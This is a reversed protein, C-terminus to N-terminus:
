FGLSNLIRMTSWGEWIIFNIEEVDSVNGTTINATASGGGVLNELKAIQVDATTDNKYAVYIVYVDKKSTIHAYDVNVAIEAGATIDAASTIAEGGIQANKIAIKQEAKQTFIAVYSNVKQLAAGRTNKIGEAVVKYTKGPEFTMGTLIAVTVGDAGTEATVTSDIKVDDCTIYVTNNTIQSHDIESGFDVVIKEVETTFGGQGSWIEGGKAVVTVRDKSFVPVANGTDVVKVLRKVSLSKINVRYNENIGNANYDANRIIIKEPAAPLTIEDGRTVADTFLYYDGVGHKVYQKFLGTDLDMEVNYTFSPIQQSGVTAGYVTSSGNKYFTGDRTERARALMNASIAENYYILAGNKTASDDDVLGFKMDVRYIDTVIDDEGADPSALNAFTITMFDASADSEASILGKSASSNTTDINTINVGAAAMGALVDDVNMQYVEVWEEIVKRFKATYSFSKAAQFTWVADESVLEDGDYWGSFIFGEKPEAKLTVESYKIVTDGIDTVIGYADNETAVEVNVYELPIEVQRVIKLSKVNARYGNAAKITLSTVPAGSWASLNGGSANTASSYQNVLGSDTMRQALHKGAAGTAANLHAITYHAEKGTVQNWTPDTSWEDSMVCFDSGERARLVKKNGNIFMWTGNKTTDDTDNLNAVLEISYINSGQEGPAIGVEALDITLFDTDAAVTTSILGNAKSSNASDLITTNLTVGAPVTGAKLANVDLEYVVKNVVYSKVFRATYNASEEVMFTWEKKTSAPADEGEKFWGEFLYGSKPYATLTVENGSQVQGLTAEDTSVGTIEVTGKEADETTVNIECTISPIVAVRKIVLSKINARRGSAAKITLINIPKEESANGASLAHGNAYIEYQPSTGRKAYHAEASGDAVNLNEMIYTATAGTNAQWHLNAWENPMACIDSNERARFVPTDAVGKLLMITGNNASDDTDNVNAVIEITYIGEGEGLAAAAMESLNITLLATDSEVVDSVLADTTTAEMDVIAGNLTVGAPVIGANLAAADMEYITQTVRRAAIFKAVYSADETAVFTWESQTSAPTEEGDVYWGDFVYGDEAVASLTVESGVQVHGESVGTVTVSGKADDESTATVTCTAIATSAVRTIKLSKINARRDKTAKITIINIPNEESANGAELAHGNAYSTYQPSSDRKAYHAEASGDYVNLNEMIYTATAGTNAQWHLDAWTNPMACIDSNERARFVIKDSTGKLFMSTGNNASDDVDNVNTVLEISYIGTGQGLLSASVEDLNITLFATDATVVDSVLASENTVNEDLIANNLTVGRPLTGAELAAADMEYVTQVVESASSFKAIYDVDELAAFSWVNDTSVLTDTVTTYWGDFVYGDAETATLTVVDGKYAAGDTLGTVEVTGKNEDESVANIAYQVNEIYADRTVKLSKLVVRYNEGSFQPTKIILSEFPQGLNIDDGRTATNGFVYDRGSNLFHQNFLGTETNVKFNYYATPIVQTGLTGNNVTGSGNLYTTGDRTERIRLLMNSPDKVENFFIWAGNKTEDDDDVFAFAMEVNYISTVLDNSDTYPIEPLEDFDIVMFDTSSSTENSVLGFAASSTTRDVNSITVGSTTTGALVDNVNMEYVTRSAKVFDDSTFAAKRTIVLKEINARYDKAAKITLGQIPAGSWATLAQGNAVSTNLAVGTSTASDYNAQHSAATGDTLSLDTIVYHAKTVSSVAKYQDGSWDNKNVTFDNAERNRLLMKNASGNAYVITGNKTTDDADIAGSVIEITYEDLDTGLFADGAADLDIQIFDTEAAVVTSLVGNASSTNETDLIDTNVNVYEPINGSIIDDASLEFVTQVVTDSFEEATATFPFVAFTSVIMTLSLFCCLLKKIKM